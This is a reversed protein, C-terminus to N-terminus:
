TSCMYVSDIGGINKMLAKMPPDPGILVRGDTAYM